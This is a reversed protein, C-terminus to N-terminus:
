PQIPEAPAPKKPTGPDEPYSPQVAPQFYHFPGMLYLNGGRFHISTCATLSVLATGVVAARGFALAARVTM